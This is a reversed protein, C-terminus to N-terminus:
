TLELKLNLRTFDRNVLLWEATREIKTYNVEKNVHKLDLTRLTKTFKIGNKKSITWDRVKWYQFSRFVDEMTLSSQIVSSSSCESGISCDSQLSSSFKNLSYVSIAFGTQTALNSSLTKFLSGVSDISGDTILSSSVNANYSNSSTVSSEFTLMDDVTMSVRSIISLIDQLQLESSVVESNSTSDSLSGGTSLSSEIDVEVNQTSVINGDLIIDCSLTVSVTEGSFLIPYLSILM